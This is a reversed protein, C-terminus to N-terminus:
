ASLTIATSFGLGCHCNINEIISMMPPLLAESFHCCSKQLKLYSYYRTENINIYKADMFFPYQLM